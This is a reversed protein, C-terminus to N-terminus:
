DNSRKRESHVIMDGVSQTCLECLGPDSSEPSMRGYCEDCIETFCVHRGEKTRAEIARVIPVDREVALMRRETHSVITLIYEEVNV